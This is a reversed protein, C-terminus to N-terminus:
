VVECCDVPVVKGSLMKALEWGNDLFVEVCLDVCYHGYWDFKVQMDLMKNGRENESSSCEVGVGDFYCDPMRITIM